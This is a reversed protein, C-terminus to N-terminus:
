SSSPPAAPTPIKFFITYLVPVFLLPLVAAFALEFAVKAATTRSMSLCASRVQPRYPVPMSGVRTRNM